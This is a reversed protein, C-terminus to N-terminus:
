ASPRSSSTAFGFPDSCAIAPMQLSARFTTPMIGWGSRAASGARPQTSPRTMRSDMTFANAVAHGDIGLRDFAVAELGVFVIPDHPKKAPFRVQGLEADEGHHPGLVATILARAHMQLRQRGLSRLHQLPGSFIGARNVDAASQRGDELDFRVVM